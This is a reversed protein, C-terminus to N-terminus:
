SLSTVSSTKIECIWGEVDIRKSFVTLKRRTLVVNSYSTSNRTICLRRGSATCRLSMVVPPTSLALPETYRITYSSKSKAASPLAIDDRKQDLFLTNRDLTWSVKLHDMFVSPHIGFAEGLMGILEPTLGQVLLVAQQREFSESLGRSIDDLRTFDWIRSFSNNSHLKLKVVRQGSHLWPIQDLFGNLEQEKLRPDNDCLERVLNQYAGPACFWECNSEAKEM